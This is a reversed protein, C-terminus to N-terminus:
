HVHRVLHQATASHAKWPGPKETGLYAHSGVGLTDKGMPSQPLARLSPTPGPSRSCFRV